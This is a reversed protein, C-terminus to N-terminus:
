RELPLREEQRSKREDRRESKKRQEKDDIPEQVKSKGPVEKLRVGNEQEIMARARHRTEQVFERFYLGGSSIPRERM